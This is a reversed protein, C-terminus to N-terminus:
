AVLFPVIAKVGSGSTNVTAKVASVCLRCLSECLSERHAETRGKHRQPSFAM